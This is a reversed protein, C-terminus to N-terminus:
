QGGYGIDPLWVLEGGGISIVVPVGLVSGAAVALSGPGRAWFGHIVDFGGGGESRLAGIMRWLRNIWRFVRGRGEVEGLNIVTAGLLPYRCRERQQQLAVVLVQHRRALREILALLVPIVRERGSRDVGGPVVMAIRM